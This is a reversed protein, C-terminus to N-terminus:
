AGARKRGAITMSKTAKMDHLAEPALDAGNPWGVTGSEADLTARAFFSPSLLPQFIPGKLLPRIDVRKRAGDNFTLDLRHPGCVKARIIRLIM